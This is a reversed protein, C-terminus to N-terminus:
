RGFDLPPAAKPQASRYDQGLLAAVTAAIQSQTVTINSRLGSAPVDPGMVAMWIREAAPIKRGHDTWDRGTDGRGHDTAVLLATRNAYEPMAQAEEWLRKIFRDNRQAADLYLDYRRSHAWEDTEGLMVYLVRPHQAHLHALAGLGTPADFRTEGWVPPLDSAFEDIARDRETAPSPIPPGDGNSPIGSRPQNLIWPLLEWSAFAAVRGAFAPQHNLWELVTVNPNPNRDNSDVRPDAFGTLLENYGPYSFWLGNTVHAVSQHAPDGFVQGQRAIVGWFFPMLKERRQEATPADFRALSRQADSDSVGGEEKTLLGKQVGGFVEQWRMGDMTVVLVNAVQPSQTRVGSWGSLVIVSVLSLVIRSRQM